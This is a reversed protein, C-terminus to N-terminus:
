RIAQKRLKKLKRYKFYSITYYTVGVAGIGACVYYLTPSEKLSTYNVLGGIAAASTIFSGTLLHEKASEKLVVTDKTQCFANTAISLLLILIISKM